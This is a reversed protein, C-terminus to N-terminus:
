TIFRLRDVLTGKDKGKWYKDDLHLYERVADCVEAKGLTGFRSAIFGHYVKEQLKNLAVYEWRTYSTATDKDGKPRELDTGEFLGELKTDPEGKKFVSLIYVEWGDAYRKAWLAYVGGPKESLLAWVFVAGGVILVLPLM